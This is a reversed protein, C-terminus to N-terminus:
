AAPPVVKKHFLGVLDTIVTHLEEAFQQGAPTCLFNMFATFGPLPDVGATINLNAM